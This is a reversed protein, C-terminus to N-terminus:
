RQVTYRLVLSKVQCVSGQLIVLSMIRLFNYYNRIAKLFFVRELDLISVIFFRESLRLCQAQQSYYPESM